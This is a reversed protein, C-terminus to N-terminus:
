LEFERLKSGDRLDHVTVFVPHEGSSALVIHADTAEVMLSRPSHGLADSELKWVTRGENDLAAYHKITAGPNDHEIVLLESGGFRQAAGYPGRLPLPGLMPESTWGLTSKVSFGGEPHPQVGICEESDHVRWHNSPCTREPWADLEEPLPTLDGHISLLYSLGNTGTVCLDGTEPDFPGNFRPANPRCVDLTPGLQSHREAMASSQVVWEGTRMNALGANRQLDFWVFDEFSGFVQANAGIEVMGLESGDELSYAQYEYWSSSRGSDGSNVRHVQVIFFEGKASDVLALPERSTGRKSSWFGLGVLGVAGVAVAAFTLQNKRKSNGAANAM